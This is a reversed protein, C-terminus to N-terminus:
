APNGEPALASALRRRARFLRSKVTGPAIDLVGAAERESFGELVCLTIIQRDILSLRALEVSADGASLAPDPAHEGAPLRALLASHRSASRRLNRGVNTSQSRREDGHRPALTTGIGRRDARARSGAM